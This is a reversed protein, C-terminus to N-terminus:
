NLTARLEQVGKPAKFEFKKDPVKVGATLGSFRYETRNGLADYVVSMRVHHTKSMIVLLVHDVSAMPKKPTLRVVTDGPEGLDCKKQCPGVDFHESIAGRGMLFKLASSLQSQNFDDFVTVQSNQPEYFYATKGDYIFFKREPKAYEWRVRGDQKAWLRGSEQKKGRLKGVWTQTFDAQIDGARSYARHVQDLSKDAAGGLSVALCLSTITWM